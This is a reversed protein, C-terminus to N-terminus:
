RWQRFLELADRMKQGRRELLAFLVLVLIGLLIGCAWWIWTQDREVAAHWIMRFLVLILFGSGLYLYARIRLLIGAVVGIVSLVSLVLLLPASEGPGAPILDATSSLYLLALGGYRLGAAVEIALRDRHFYESVLVILAFPVLWLQPHVLFGIGEHGYLAWLAANMALASGLVYGYSRRSFALVGYLIGVSLWLMSYSRLSSPEGGLVPTLWFAILPLAPLFIGTRHLPDALVELNRRRFFEAIGVGVFAIAMVSVTWGFGGIPTPLIGPINLRVHLFILALVAEASYVYGKRGSGSLGFPDLGPRVAFALLAAVLGLMAVAVLGTEFPSLPTKGAVKEFFFVEQVLVAALAFVGLAALIPGVRRAVHAWRNEASLLRPLAIAAMAAVFGLAALLAVSGHLWPAAASPDSAAWGIEALLLVALGFAAHELGRSWDGVTRSALMVITAMLLAIALPGAMRALTEAAVLSAPFSLLIVLGVVIVQAATFWSASAPEVARERRSWIREIIQSLLAYGAVALVAPRFLEEFPWHTELWGLAIASLGISYLSAAAFRLRPVRLGLLAAALTLGSAIGISINPDRGVGSAILEVIGSSALLALMAAGAAVAVERFPRSLKRDLVFWMVAAAALCAIQVAAFEVFSETGWAFWVFAGALNVMSASVCVAVLRGDRMALVAFVGAALLAGGASAYPRQPDDWAALFALTAVLIAFAQSWATATRNRLPLALASATAWGLMLAYYAPWGPRIGALALALWIGALFTFGGIIHGRLQPADQRAVLWLIAAVIVLSALGSDDGSQIAFATPALTPKLVLQVAPQGFLALLGGVVIALQVVTFINPGTRGRDRVWPGVLLLLAAGAIAAQLSYAAWREFPLPRFGHWVATAITLQIVLSAIAAWEPRERRIALWLGAVSVAALAPIAALSDGHILTAKMALAVALGGALGGWRDFASSSRALWAAVLACAATGCLLTRFGWAPFNEAITGAILVAVGLLCFAMSDPSFRRGALNSRLLGAGATLALAAWGWGSAAATIWAVPEAYTPSISPGFVAPVSGVLFLAAAGLLVINGVLAVGLQIEWLPSVADARGRGMRVAVIWVASCIAASVIARQIAGVIIPVGLAEGALVSEVAFGLGIAITTQLGAILAYAAQKERIAHGLLVLALAALPIGHSASWTLRGFFSDAVPGAPLRGSLIIAAIMVTLIAAPRGIVVSWKVLASRGAEEHRRRLWCPIALAVSAVALGWRLASATAIDPAARGAALLAASVALCGFGALHLTRRRSNGSRLSLILAAGLVGLLLWPKAGLALVTDAQFYAEFAIVGAPIVERMVEPVVLWSAVVLQGAVIADLLLPDFAESAESYFRVFSRQELTRRLVAWLLAMAGLGMGFAYVAEANTFSVAMGATQANVVLLHGVGLAAAATTAIQFATFWLPRREIIAALLWIGGLWLAALAEVGLLLPDIGILLRVSAVGSLALAAQRLPLVFIQRFPTDFLPGILSAVLAFTAYALLVTVWPLELVLGLSLLLAHAIGALLLVTAAWSLSVLQWRKAQVWAAVAFLFATATNWASGFAATDFCVAMGALIAAIGTARWGRARFTSFIVAEFALVASWCPWERPIAWHLAAFTTLPVLGSGIQELLPYRWRRSLVLCVVSYAIGVMAAWRPDGLSDLVTLAFSWVGIAGAAIQYVRADALRQSQILRDAVVVLFLVLGALAAGTLGAGDGLPFRSADASCALSIAALFSVLLSPLALFQVPAFRFRMAVATLLGYNALGVFLLAWREPWAMGFAALQMLGGVLAIISAVVGLLGTSTEGQSPANARRQVFLGGALVSAGAVVAPLALPRLVEAVNGGQSVVWFAMFAISGVLAYSAFGVWALVPAAALGATDTRRHALVACGIAMTHCAVPWALLLAFAWTLSDPDYARAALLPALAPGVMALPLLWGRSRARWGEPEHLLVRGAGRVMLAFVVLAVVKAFWEIPDNSRPSIGALVLFNLPVLLTAIVLLNRSSSELKWHSLSYLGIAYIAATGAASALFPFLPISELTQWLSLLLAISCGVVLLGGVLEGWFINRQELFTGFWDSWSVRSPVSETPKAVNSSQTVEPTVLPPLEFRSDIQPIPPSVPPAIQAPLPPPENPIRPPESEVRPITPEARVPRLIGEQRPLPSDERPTPERFSRRREHILNDLRHFTSNDLLGANRFTLIQRAMVRLDASEAAADRTMDCHPCRREYRRLTERCNRCLDHTEERVPRRARGRSGGLTAFLLWLGHGVVTVVGLVVSLVVAVWLFDM